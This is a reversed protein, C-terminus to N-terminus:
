YQFVYKRREEIADHLSTFHTLKENTPESPSYSLTNCLRQKHIPLRFTNVAFIGIELEM